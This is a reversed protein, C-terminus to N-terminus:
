ARIPAVALKLDNPDHSALLVATGLTWSLDNGGGDYPTFTLDKGGECKEDMLLVGFAQRLVRLTWRTTFISKTYIPRMFDRDKPPLKALIANMQAYTTKRNEIITPYLTSLKFNGEDNLAVKLSHWFNSAGIFDLKRIVSDLPQTIAAEPSLEDVVYGTLLFTKYLNTEREVLGEDPRFRIINGEVEEEPSGLRKAPDYFIQSFLDALDIGRSMFIRTYVYRRAM